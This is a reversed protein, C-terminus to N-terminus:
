RVSRMPCALARSRRAFEAYNSRAMAGDPRRSVIEVGGFLKEAREIFPILTLPFNMMTGKQM